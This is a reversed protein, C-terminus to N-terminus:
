SAVKSGNAVTIFHPTKSSSMSSFSPINGSIHDSAGSDLIWPSHGEVSQSICATSVNPMSSSQGLNSTKGSKYRLFEQYEEDS